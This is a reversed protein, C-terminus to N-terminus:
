REPDPPLSAGGSAIVDRYWYYSDKPTRRQTPYDVHILGFRKAYGEAWEFNDMISWHFYGLVPVGDRIARRLALLYRTAYDIRQPDHVQGDVAVWDTNALGNETVVVPLRYREWFFKPGWYLADPSLPWPMATLPHGIARGVPEAGGGKGARVTDSQYINAGFFDLPAHMTELDRRSHKPVDAGFVRLGDEPYRGFVLPDTWWSTNWYSRSAVAFTARRAAAVDAPKTSAPIQHPGVPAAGILPRRRAHARIARV